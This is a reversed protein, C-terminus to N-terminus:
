QRKGRDTALIIVLPEGRENRQDTKLMLSEGAPVRLGAQRVIAGTELDYISFDRLEISTGDESIRAFCQVQYRGGLTESYRRGDPPTMLLEQELRYKAPDLDVKRVAAAERIEAEAGGLAFMLKLRIPLTGAPTDLMELARAIRELNVPKDTVQIERGGEPIHLKAEDSMLPRLANLVEAPRRHHLKFTKTVFTDGAPQPETPEASTLAPREARQQERSLYDNVFLFIAGAFIILAAAIRVWPIKHPLVQRHLLVRKHMGNWFGEWAPQETERTLFVVEPSGSALARRRGEPTAVLSSLRRREEDDLSDSQYKELLRKLEDNM